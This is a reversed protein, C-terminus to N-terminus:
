LLNLEKCQEKTKLIKRPQSGKYESIIGLETMQELIRSARAYGLKLNRQIFSASIEKTNFILEIAENLRPDLDKDNSSNPIKNSDTNLTNKTNKKYNPDESNILEVFNSILENIKLMTSVNSCHALFNIGENSTISISGYKCIPLQRNNSFRKDPGGNKNVYQWTYSVIQADRPVLQNEIFNITSLFFDLNKYSCGSIGNVGKSIIIRDPMLYIKEKKLTLCYVSINSKIYWPLRKSLSITERTVTNGAGSNYKIDNVRTSTNIRWVKKNSFVEKISANLYDNKNKTFDDFEYELTIRGYIAIFLKLIIGYM